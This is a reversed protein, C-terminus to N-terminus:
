KEDLQGVFTQQFIKGNKLSDYWPGLLYLLKKTGESEQKDFNFQETGITVSNGFKSLSGNFNVDVTIKGFDLGARLKDTIQKKYGAKIIKLLPKRYSSFVYKKIEYAIRGEVHVLDYLNGAAYKGGLAILIGELKPDCALLKKKNIHRLINKGACTGSIRAVTVNPPM